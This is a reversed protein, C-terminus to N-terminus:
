NCQRSPLEKTSTTSSPPIPELTLRNHKHCFWFLNQQVHMVVEMCKSHMTHSAWHTKLDVYKTQKWRSPAFTSICVWKTDSIICWFKATIKRCNLSTLFPRLTNNGPRWVKSTSDVFISSFKVEFQHQELQWFPVFPYFVDLAAAAIGCLFVKKINTDTLDRSRVQRKRYVQPVLWWWHSCIALNHKLIQSNVVIFIQGFANFNQWVLKLIKGVELFQWLSLKHQWLPSIEGFRTVMNLTVMM